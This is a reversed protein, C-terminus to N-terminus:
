RNGRAALHLCVDLAQTLTGVCETQPVMGGLDIRMIRYPMAPDRDDCSVVFAATAKSTEPDIQECYWLAVSRNGAVRGCFSVQLGHYDFRRRFSPEISRRWYVRAADSRSKAQQM